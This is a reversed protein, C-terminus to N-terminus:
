NQNKLNMGFIEYSNLPGGFHHLPQAYCFSFVEQIGEFITGHPAFNYNTGWKNLPGTLFAIKANLFKKNIVMQQVMTPTESLGATSIFIDSSINIQSLFHIPILHISGPKLIDPVTKHVIVDIDSMTSRLYLSQIALYEPLDFVIYTLNSKVSKAIRALCGFGGGVEVIIDIDEIACRELIKAFYFLQGLTNISCNFDKCQFNLGGFHTDSFSEILERTKSKICYKLTVIEYDQTKDWEKRVMPGSIPAKLLFHADEKGMILNLMNKKQQTWYSHMFGSDSVNQLASSLSQYENQMEGWQESFSVSTIKFFLFLLFFVIRNKM